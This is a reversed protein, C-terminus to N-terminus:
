SGLLTKALSGLRSQRESLEYCKRGSSVTMKIAENNVPKPSPNAPSDGLSYTSAFLPILEKLNHRYTTTGVETRNLPTNNYDFRTPTPILEYANPLFNGSTAM